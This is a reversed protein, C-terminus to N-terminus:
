VAQECYNEFYKKNFRAISDGIKFLYFINFGKEKNKGTEYQCAYRMYFIYVPIYIYIIINSENSKWYKKILFLLIIKQTISESSM